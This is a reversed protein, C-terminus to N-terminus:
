LRVVLTLQQPLDNVNSRDNWTITVTFRNPDLAVVTVTGKGEPLLAANATNWAFRDQLSIQEPTCTTGCSVNTGPTYPIADYDKNGVGVGNARMREIMDYAQVVAQSRLYGGDNATLAMTQMLALGLLGFSFIVLAILVELLSFGRCALLRHPRANNFAPKKMYTFAQM